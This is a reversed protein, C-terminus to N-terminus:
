SAAPLSEADSDHQFAVFMPAQLVSVLLMPKSPVQKTSLRSVVYDHEPFDKANPKMCTMLRRTSYM